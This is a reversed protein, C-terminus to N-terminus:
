IKELNKAEAFVAINFVKTCMNSSVVAKTKSAGLPLDFHHSISIIKPFLYSVSSFEFVCEHGTGLFDTQASM